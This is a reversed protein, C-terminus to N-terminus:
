EAEPPTPLPMWHTVNLYENEQEWDRGLNYIEGRATTAFFPKYNTVNSIKYKATFVEYGDTVLVETGDKPAGSIARWGSAAILKDLLTLAERAKEDIGDLQMEFVDRGLTAEPQAIVLQRANDWAVMVPSQEDGGVLYSTLAGRIEELEKKM